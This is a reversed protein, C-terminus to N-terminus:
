EHPEVHIDVDHVHHTHILIQEVEETIDHSDYVTTQGDVEITMDLYVKSGALRARISPIALVKPHKLATQKYTELVKPDFGDSLTFTSESFIQYAAKIILCGIVISILPDLIPYGSASAFTALITGGSAFIDSLMDKATARLGISNTQIAISSIIRYAVFLLCTSLLGVWISKLDVAQFEYFYVRLASEKVVSTGIYFMILSVTFSALAEFKIHGFHHDDDAPRHALRLALFIVFSSFVDSLNNLGDAQLASSHFIYGASLKIITLIVYVTFGILIGHTASLSRRYHSWNM